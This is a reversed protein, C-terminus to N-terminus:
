PPRVSAARCSRRAVRPPLRRSRSWQRSPSSRLGPASRPAAASSWARAAGPRRSLEGRHVVGPPAKLHRAGPHARVAHQHRPRCGRAISTRSSCRCMLSSWMTASTAAARRAPAPAPPKAESATARPTHLAAPCSVEPSTPGSPPVRPIAERTPDGAARRGAARRGAARRGPASGCQRGARAPQGRHDGAVLQKTVGPWRGLTGGPSLLGATLPPQWRPRVPGAAPATM